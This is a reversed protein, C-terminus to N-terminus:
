TFCSNCTSHHFIYTINNNKIAPSQNEGIIADLIAQMHNKLITIYINYVLNKFDSYIVSIFATSSTADMTGLKELSNHVDLLITSLYAM